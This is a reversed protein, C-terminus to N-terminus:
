LSHREGIGLLAFTGAIFAFCCLFGLMNRNFGIRHANGQDTFLHPSWPVLFPMLNAALRHKESRYHGLMRVFHIAACFFFIFAPVFAVLACSALGIQLYREM